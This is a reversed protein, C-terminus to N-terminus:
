KLPTFVRLRVVGNTDNAAGARPNRGQLWELYDSVGDGDTDVVAINPETADLVGDGDADELFDALGDGDSDIPVGGSTAVYHLGIDVTSNTEKVNNTLVTWHYL